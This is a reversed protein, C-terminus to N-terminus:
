LVFAPGSVSSKGSGTPGMLRVLTVIFSNSRFLAVYAIVTDQEKIEETRIEKVEKRSFTNPTNEGTNSTKKRINSTDGGTNSTKKGSNSTDRGTNLIPLSSEPNDNSTV